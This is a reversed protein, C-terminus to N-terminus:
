LVWVVLWGYAYIYMYIAYGYIYMYIIYYM